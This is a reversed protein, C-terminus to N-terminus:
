SPQSSNLCTHQFYHLRFLGPSVNPTSLCCHAMQSPLLWFRPILLSPILLPWTPFSWKWGSELNSLQSSPSWWTSILPKPCLLSTIVDISYSLDTLPTFLLSHLFPFETLSRYSGLCSLTLSKWFPISFSIFVCSIFSTSDVSPPLEKTIFGLPLSLQLHDKGRTAMLLGARPLINAKNECSWLTWCLVGEEATLGM